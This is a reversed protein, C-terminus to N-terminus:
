YMKQVCVKISFSCQEFKPINVPIIKSTGINVIRVTPIFQFLAVKLVELCTSNFLLYKLPLSVLFRQATTNNVLLLVNLSMETSIFESIEEPEVFASETISM